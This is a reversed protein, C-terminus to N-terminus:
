PLKSRIRGRESRARGGRRPAKVWRIELVEDAWDPDTVSQTRSTM